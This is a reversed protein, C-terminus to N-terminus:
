FSLARAKPYAVLPVTKQMRANERYLTVTVTDGPRKSELMLRLEGGTTVPKGDIETIVDGGVYFRRNYLIVIESAGRIGAGDASSGQAVSAVLIGAKVPLRLAAALDERLQPGTYADLEGAPAFVAVEDHLARRAINVRNM